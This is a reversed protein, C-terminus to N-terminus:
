RTAKKKYNIPAFRKEETPTLKYESIVKRIKKRRHHKIIAGITGFILYFVLIWAINALILTLLIEVGPMNFGLLLNVLNFNAFNCRTQLSFNYLQIGEITILGKRKKVYEKVDFLIVKKDSLHINVTLGNATCYGGIVRAGFVTICFYLKKLKYDLVLYATLYIPAFLIFNNIVFFWVAQM